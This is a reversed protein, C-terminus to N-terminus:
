VKIHNSVFFQHSKVSVLQKDNLLGANARRFANNLKVSILILTGMVRCCVFRCRTKHKIVLVLPIHRKNGM